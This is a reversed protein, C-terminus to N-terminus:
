DKLRRVFDKEDSGSDSYVSGRHESKRQTNVVGFVRLRERGTVFPMGNRIGVFLGEGNLNIYNGQAFGLEKSGPFPFFSLAVTGLHTKVSLYKGGRLDLGAAWVRGKSDSILANELSIPLTSPDLLQDDNELQLTFKAIVRREGETSVVWVVPAFDKVVITEDRLKKGYTVDPSNPMHGVMSDFQEVHVKIVGAKDISWEHRLAVKIGDGEARWNSLITQGPDGFRWQRYEDVRSLLRSGDASTVFIEGRIKLHEYLDKVEVPKGKIDGFDNSSAWAGGGTGCLFACVCSMVIRNIKM